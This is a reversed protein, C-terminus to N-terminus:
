GKLPISLESIRGGPSLDHNFPFTDRMSTNMNVLSMLDSMIAFSQVMLNSFM